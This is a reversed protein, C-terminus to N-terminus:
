PKDNILAEIRDLKKDMKELKETINFHLIECVRIAQKKDIEICNRKVKGALQGVWVLAAASVPILPLLIALLAIDM